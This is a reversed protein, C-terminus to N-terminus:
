FLYAQEESLFGIQFIVDSKSINLKWIKFFVNEAKWERCICVSGGGGYLVGGGWVCACVFVGGGGVCVCM